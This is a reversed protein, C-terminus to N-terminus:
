HQLVKRYKRSWAAFVAVGWFLAFSSLEPPEALGVPSPSSTSSFLQLMGGSNDGSFSWNFATPDGVAANRVVGTGALVLYSPGQNVTTLTELAFSFGAVTWLPDVPGLFPDFTFDTLAVPSLVPFVGNSAYDGTAAAVISSEFDIGTADQLGTGGTASFTGWFAVEGTIPDAKASQPAMLAFGFLALIALRVVRQNTMNAVNRM